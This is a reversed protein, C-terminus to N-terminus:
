VSARIARMRPAKASVTHITILQKPIRAFATDLAVLGDAGVEFATAAHVADYSGLAYRHMLDPVADAVLSAEIRDFGLNVLESWADFAEEAIRSARRRARGDRRAAKWDKGYQDRLAVQYGAEILELELLSSYAVRSSLEVVHQLAEACEDHYTQGSLLAEVV